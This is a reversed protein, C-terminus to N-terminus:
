RFMADFVPSWMALIMKAAYLRRGEVVFTIDAFTWPATFNVDSGEAAM